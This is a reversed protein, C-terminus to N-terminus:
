RRHREAHLMGFIGGMCGFLLVLAFRILQMEDPSFGNWLGFCLLFLVFLGGQVAGWVFGRSRQFAATLWSSFLSGACAAASAMPWAATQPLGQAAMLYALAAMCAGSFVAGAAFALLICLIPIKKQQLM